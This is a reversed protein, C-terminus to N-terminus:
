IPAERPEVLIENVAVYQPQSVTYVIASAVDNPELAQIKSGVDFQEVAEKDTSITILPTKVDGPQVCTVRVGSGLVEHRLAQSLGEVYFKTGSYVALGAFGRRGANSSINVIHGRGRKMMGDLVAGIANTVGKCNVDIQREWEDEHMNKMMTFYMLGACNVLIDVPGLSSEAQRVLAKVQDRSTVDTKVAIAEGGEDNIRKAIGQIVEERRAALAVRAGAAALAKATAKGIGSSAGTVVAVRDALPQHFNQNQTGWITSKRRGLVSRNTLETFYTRLLRIDTYPYLMGLQSLLSQMNQNDYTSLNTLFTSESVYSELVRAMTEASPGSAGNLADLEEVVRKKWEDFDLLMLPYGHTNMWQFVERAKMPKDNILHLTRGLASDPTQTLKVIVSAAFDVPTMEIDWDVNPALGTKACAQIILLTFDQPNWFAKKSDGSLNGLRYVTAPLGRDRARSVLQEAVWKSQSYGDSLQDAYQTIDTDEKCHRLGHPFVGDTSIYHLAKVKGTAAFQIVNATGMVNPGHLASYPYALNVAAAAHIVFDIDTCLYTYDEESLGLRMLSINGKLATARQQFAENVEAQEETANAEDQAIIGYQRLTQQIRDEASKQPLERVLCYVVLKTRTLLEKLIFAGLFGTTGTLLVRGRHFHHGHHFTRWFARLQMDLNTVGQDHRRVEALLDLKPMIDDESSSVSSGGGNKNALRNDILKALSSITPCLFLDKVALHVSFKQKARTLLETALLSHGGLDFFSEQIDVEKLQLVAIWIEALAIETVTSPRGEAGVSDDDQSNLTPLAKKDLKGSAPVVPISQLFMFYSPIMYFPLRKKLEARVLKKTTQGDSVIYAVLYKDEGEEGSVLVVCKKVMPLSLLCSEVAQVEISYGRIKVMSDLRGCIELSGDSLMYGCDGTRYMRTQEGQGTDMTIFRQKQVEPRNIYGRALTPGSVYIEGSRGVPQVKGDKDLITIGVGKIIRGVPSFKRSMLFEKNDRYYASLDECAVDHCESVSYLNVYRVWPLTQICRELLSTTVVEGCFWIQKLSSFAAQLQDTPTTNLVTELLSPTFLMRTICNSRLYECLVPPDYIEHNTVVYLPIGKLLPRLMEWVFFINCAERDDEVYPYTIHRHFYSFVAGRQPCMIGKPKGTTGSSYVTYGLNDFGMEPKKLSFKKAENDKKMADQWESGLVILRDDPFASLKPALECSTVIATPEADNIVSELMHSPYSTDIPIYGGGAKLTAIYAVVFSVSKGLYIGCSKEPGVGRGQLAAALTDTWTDLESFTVTKNEHPSVVAVASPTLKAQKSFQDQLLDNTEYATVDLTSPDSSVDTSPM